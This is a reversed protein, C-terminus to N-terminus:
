FQTPTLLYVNAQNEKWIRMNLTFIHTGTASNWPSKKEFIFKNFGLFISIGIHYM